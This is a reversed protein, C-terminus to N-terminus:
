FPLGGRANQQPEFLDGRPIAFRPDLQGRLCWAIGIAEAADLSTVSRDILQAYALSDEKSARANGTFAKRWTMQNIYRHHVGHAECVEEVIACLGYIRLFTKMPPRTKPGESGDENRPGSLEIDTRLPQEVGVHTIQYKEIMRYIIRRCHRFVEGSRDGQWRFAGSTVYSDGDLIAFGTTTAVDLGAIKM